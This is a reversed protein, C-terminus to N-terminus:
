VRDRGLMWRLYADRDILIRRGRRVIARAERLGNEKEHLIDWRIAGPGLAPKQGPGPRTSESFASVTMLFAVPPPQVTASGNTKGPSQDPTAQMTDAGNDQQAVGRMM